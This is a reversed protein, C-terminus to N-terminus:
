NGDFDIIFESKCWSCYLPFRVLKTIGPIVKTKTKGSCGPCLLFGNRNVRLVQLRRDLRM